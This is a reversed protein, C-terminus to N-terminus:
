FLFLFVAKEEAIADFSGACSAVALLRSECPCWGLGLDEDSEHRLTREEFPTTEDRRM